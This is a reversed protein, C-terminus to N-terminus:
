AIMFVDFAAPLVGVEDDIVIFPDMWSLFGLHHIYGDIVQFPFKRLMFFSEMAMM